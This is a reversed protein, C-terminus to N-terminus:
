KKILFGNMKVWFYGVFLRPLFPPLCPDPGERCSMKIKKIVLYNLTLLNIQTPHVVNYTTLFGGEFYYSNLLQKRPEPQLVV